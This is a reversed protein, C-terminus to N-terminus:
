EHHIQTAPQNYCKRVHRVCQIARLLEDELARIHQEPAQSAQLDNLIRGVYTTWPENM